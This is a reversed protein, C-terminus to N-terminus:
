YDSFPLRIMIFGNSLLIMLDIGANNNVNTMNDASRVPQVPEAPSSEERPINLENGSAPAFGIVNSAGEPDAPPLIPKVAAVPTDSTSRDRVTVTSSKEMSLSFTM